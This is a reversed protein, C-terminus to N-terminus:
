RCALAHAASAAHTRAHHAARTHREPAPECEAADVAALAFPRLRGGLARSMDSYRCPITPLTHPWPIIPLTPGGLARPMDGYWEKGAISSSKLLRVCVLPTADATPAPPWPHPRRPPRPRLRSFTLSPSLLRSFPLSPLYPQTPTLILSAQREPLLPLHQDRRQASARLHGGGDAPSSVLLPHHSPHTWPITPLAHAYADVATQRRSAASIGGLHRRASM